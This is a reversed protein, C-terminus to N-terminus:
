INVCRSVHVYGHVTLIIIGRTNIRVRKNSSHVVKVRTKNHFKPPLLYLRIKVNRQFNLELNERKGKKREKKKLDRRVNKKRRFRTHM